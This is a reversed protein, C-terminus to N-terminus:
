VKGEHFIWCKLLEEFFEGELHKTPRSTNGVCCLRADGTATGGGLKAIGNGLLFVLDRLHALFALVTDEVRRFFLGQCGVM